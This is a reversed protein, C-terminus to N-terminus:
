QYDGQEIRKSIWWYNGFPDVIGGQRDGYPMDEPSFLGKAGFTLAREYMADADNVYMYFCTRMNMFDGSAQSVMFSTDGIKLICNRIIGSEPDLTRALEEAYFVQKTFDILGQPDETMLYTNM